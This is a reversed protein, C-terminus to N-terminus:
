YDDEDVREGGAYTALAHLTKADVNESIFRVTGDGFGVHLGGAHDSGFTLTERNLGPRMARVTAPGAAIWPGPQYRVQGIMVTLSTGDKIDTIKTSGSFIGNPDDEWGSVGAVHTLAYGSAHNRESATPNLFVEVSTRAATRNEPSDWALQLNIANYLDREEVYPLLLVMWSLRRELPLAENPVSPPPFRKYADHYNHL